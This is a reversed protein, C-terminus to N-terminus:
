LPGRLNQLLQEVSMALLETDHQQRVPESFAVGPPWGIATNLYPPYTAEGDVGSWGFGIFRIDYAGAGGAGSGGGGGTGSSGGGSGCGGGSTGAPQRVMVNRVRMDGHAFRQGGGGQVGHAQQLAALAAASAAAAAAPEKISTLEQWGDPAGLWEMEVQLWGGPLWVVRHLQPALGAAAWARHAAEGYGRCFRVVAPKGDSSPMARYVLKSDGIRMAQQYDALPYPMAALLGAARGPPQAAAPQLLQEQQQPSYFSYLEQMTAKVSALTSALRLMSDPDDDLRLLNILPTLPRVTVKDLWYLASVRLHPGVAELLLAPCCTRQFYISTCRSKWFLGYYATGQFSSDGAVGLDVKVELFACSRWQRKSDQPNLVVMGDTLMTSTPEPGLKYVYKGLYTSLLAQLLTEYDAQLFHHPGCLVHSPRFHTTRPSPPTHLCCPGMSTINCRFVWSISDPQPWSTRSDHTHWSSGIIAPM